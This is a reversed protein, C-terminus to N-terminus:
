SVRPQGTGWRTAYQPHLNGFRFTIRSAAFTEPPSSLLAFQRSDTDWLRNAAYDDIHLTWVIQVGTTRELRAVECEKFRDTVEPRAQM